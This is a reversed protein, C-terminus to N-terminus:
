DSKFLKLPYIIDQINKKEILLNYRFLTNCNSSLEQNTDFTRTGFSVCHLGPIKDFKDSRQSITYRCYWIVIDRFIFLM